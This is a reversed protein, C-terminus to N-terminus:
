YVEVGFFFIPYVEGRDFSKHRDVIYSLGGGGILSVQSSIAISMLGRTIIVHQDAEDPTSSFIKKNDVYMYGLDISFSSTDQFLYVGYYGAYSLAAGKSLYYNYFGLSVISYIKDVEFKVGSNLGSINSGWSIWRIHGEKKSINVLGVPIGFTEDNWNVVGLQFGRMEASVNFIGIQASESFYPAINVMGIQAGTLKKGVINFLGSTQVGKFEEGVINFLGAGQYGTCSEGVINFGGTAQFGQFREGVINFFGSAQFGQFSDGSINLGGVIQFGKGRSGIINILGGVQGGELDEGCVNILGSVQAGSVHEGSIGGLGALQFGELGEELASAGIALDLGRVTGVQGYFLTLNVNVSDHKTKNISVPYWLSLNVVHHRPSHIIEKDKEQADLNLSFLSISWLVFLALQTTRKFLEM